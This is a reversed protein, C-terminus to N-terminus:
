AEKLVNVTTLRMWASRNMLVGENLEELMKHFPQLYNIAIFCQLMKFTEIFCQKCAIDSFRVTYWAAINCLEMFSSNLVAHM